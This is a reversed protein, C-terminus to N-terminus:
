CKNSSSFDMELRFANFLDNQRIGIAKASLSREKPIRVNLKETVTVCNTM